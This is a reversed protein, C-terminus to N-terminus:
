SQEATLVEDKHKQLHQLIDFDIQQTAAYLAKDARDLLDLQSPGLAEIYAYRVTRDKPVRGHPFVQAADRLITAARELGLMELGAITEHAYAGMPNMFYQTHGGNGVEGTYWLALHAALESPSLGTLEGTESLGARTSWFSALTALAQVADRENAALLQAVYSRDIKMLRVTDRSMRNPLARKNELAADPGNERARVPRGRDWSGRWCAM